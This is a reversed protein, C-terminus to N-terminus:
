LLIRLSSSDFLAIVKLDCFQVLEEIEQELLSIDLQGVIMNHQRGILQLILLETLVMVSSRISSIITPNKSLMNLPSNLFPLKFKIYSLFYFNIVIKEWLIM